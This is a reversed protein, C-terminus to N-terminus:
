EAPKALVVGDPPWMLHLDRSDGSCCAANGNAVLRACEPLLQGDPDVAYM